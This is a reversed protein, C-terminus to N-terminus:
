CGNTHLRNRLFFLFLTDFAMTNVLIISGKRGFVFSFSHRSGEHSHHYM